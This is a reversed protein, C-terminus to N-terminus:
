LATAEALFRLFARLKASEQRAGHHLAYLPYTEDSWGPLVQVIRGSAILERAYLQLVQTVGVGAVCAAHLSGVDNVMLQGEVAIPVVQAGRQLEWEFPAGTAPDRMLVCRHRTLDAPTRPVGHRKLYAPSACTIVRTRLLLKAKLASPPPVGWRVALDFGDRVLDGLRDRVVLDLSLEPNAALFGSLKAALVYPGIGADVNVRLRGRIRRSASGAEATADVIAALHPAVSDYFRRGDETLASSRATRAFLRVGLRDELRSVARSVASQTLGLVEGARVFSGTEVVAALLGLGDLARREEAHARSGHMSM